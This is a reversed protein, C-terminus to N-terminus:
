RRKWRMKTWQRTLRRTHTHTHTNTSTYATHCHYGWPWTATSLSSPRQNSSLRWVLSHLQRGLQCRGTLPPSTFVHTQTNQCHQHCPQHVSQSGATNLVFLSVKGSSSVPGRTSCRAPSWNTNPFLAPFTFALCFFVCALCTQPIFSFFFSFPTCDYHTVSTRLM